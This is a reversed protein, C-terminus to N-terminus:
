PTTKSSSSRFETVRQLVEEFVDAPVLGGKIKPYFVEAEKRWEAELEPTVAHVKLGKEQMAKVSRDAEARSHSRVIKGAAIGAKLMEARVNPPLKEWAAKRVVLAGMLPAWNLELMHPAREHVLTALAAVPPAPTANILGTDLMPVIDATELPVPQFGAFKWLEILKTDGAWTFLKTRKLDAPHLVPEKSFFRVWGADAWFIVTFGKADLQKELKPQLQASVHDYEELSRFVMPMIQLGTVAHEIETLGIGTLLGADLAGLRMQGVMKAEGGIKGGAYIRLNVTGGSAARWQDRMELLAKHYITGEPALTGLTLTTAARAAALTGLLALLLAAELAQKLLQKM